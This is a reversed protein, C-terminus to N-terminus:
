YICFCTLFNPYIVNFLLINLLCISGRSRYISDLISNAQEAAPEWAALGGWGGPVEPVNWHFQKRAQLGGSSNATGREWTFPKPNARASNWSTETPGNGWSASTERSLLGAGLHAWLRMVREAGGIQYWRWVQVLVSNINYKIFVERFISGMKM